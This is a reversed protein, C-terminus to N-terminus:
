ASNIDLLRINRGLISAAAPDVMATFLARLTSSALLRRTVSFMSNTKISKSNSYATHVFTRLDIEVRLLFGSIM